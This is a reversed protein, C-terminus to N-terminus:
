AVASGFLDDVAALLRDVNEDCAGHGMLGIRWLKGKAAGLGGGVEIGYEDLLRRRLPGEDVGEPLLASTLQPLRHGEQAFLTFGRDVLGAKLRDGVRAHREFRAELGEARLESLGQHLAYVMNIPATHHYKRESGLYGALLSVDLYWSACPVTRSRIRDMAKESFTIPALGPPVGLCKQTGAYCVDIHNGDVAVPTGGIATVADVVLLTDTAAVAAGIEALPQQVGTSTEALVIALARAGPHARLADIVADPDLIRGWEAEVLVVEAGMRRSMEALRGGFVGNSAVIVTDGPEIVNVLSAEMAASGTGSVPFTMTNDTGFALRLGDAVDDMLELFQPDLHGLTSRALAELISPSVPSPGPGLLLRPQIDTLQM